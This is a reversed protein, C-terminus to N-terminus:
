AAREKSILLSEPAVRLSDAQSEVQQLTLTDPNLPHPALGADRRADEIRTTLRQAKARTAM